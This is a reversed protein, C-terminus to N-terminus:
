QFTFASEDYVVTADRKLFVVSVVGGAPIRLTGDDPLPKEWTPDPMPKLSETLCTLTGTVEQAGTNYLAVSVATSRPGPDTVVLTVDSRREVLTVRATLTAAYPKSAQAIVYLTKTRDAGFDDAPISCRLTQTRDGGRSLTGDLTGDALNAGDGDLWRVGTLPEGGEGDTVTCTYSIDSETPHGAVTYNRLTFSFSARASADETLRYVAGDLQDSTFHFNGATALFGNSWEQLYRAATSGLVAAAALTVALLLLRLVPVRHRTSVTTEPGEPATAQVPAEPWEAPGTLDLDPRDYQYRVM